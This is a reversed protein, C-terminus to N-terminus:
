SAPEGSQETAPAAAEGRRGEEAIERWRRMVRPEELTAVVGPDFRSGSEDRIRALAEDVSDPDRYTRSQTLADFVDAVSIIRAAVPIEEGRSGRPYGGGSWCEHHSEVVRILGPHFEELPELIHASEHPHQQIAAREEESLRSPSHVIHFFRDDIKGMDHLLAAIRLTAHERRSIGHAEALATALQAVRRSHRATFPDGASLANLLTEVTARHLRQSYGRSHLAQLAWATAVVVAAIAILSLPLEAGRQFV